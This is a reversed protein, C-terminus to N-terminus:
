LIYSTSNSFFSVSVSPHTQRFKFTENKTLPLQSGQALCNRCGLDAGAVINNLNVNDLIDKECRFHLSNTLRKVFM